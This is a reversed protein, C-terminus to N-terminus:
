CNWPGNNISYALRLARSNMTLDAAAEPRNALLCYAGPPSSLCKRLLAPPPQNQNLKSSGRKWSKALNNSMVIFTRQKSMVLLIEPAKWQEFNSSHESFSDASWRRSRVQSTAKHVQYREAVYFRCNSNDISSHHHIKPIIRPSNHLM